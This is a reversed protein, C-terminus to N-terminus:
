IMQLYCICVVELHSGFDLSSQFAANAGLHFHYLKFVVILSLQVAHCIEVDFSNPALYM